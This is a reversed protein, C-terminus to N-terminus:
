QYQTNPSGGVYTPPHIQRPPQKTRRAALTLQRTCKALRNNQEALRRREPVPNKTEEELM